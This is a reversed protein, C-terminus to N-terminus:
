FKNKPIFFPTKPRAVTNQFLVFDYDHIFIEGQFTLYIRQYVDEILQIEIGLIEAFFWVLIKQSFEPLGL